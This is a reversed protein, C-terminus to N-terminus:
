TQSEIKDSVIESAILAMPVGIGPHIYQGTYYLNEVKKSQNHPRLIATQMLTHSLGLATGKYSNFLKKFDNHAFIQKTIIHDRINEGVLSELHKLTKEEYKERIEPTDPLGSAVPVLVFLNECGEPAVNSDTKSPACVYYSPSEPWDPNEFISDFHKEWDNDLFLNHHELKPLKKDIGLYMIFGSPAVTRKEWYRKSYSQYEKDLLRTETFHYDANSVIIDAEHEGSSTTVSKAKGDEVHIKEVPADFIYKVGLSKGLEYIGKAVANLGGEPYWVGMNFDIHAMISYMAPTTKPTGGLFVINYQLIKRARDDSFFRRVYKDISDFVHLKVGEVMFKRDAFDRFRRYDRYVFNKMSIDYQYESLDLYEMFKKDGGEELRGFLKKNAELDSRIDVVEDQGFFIRYSPDLKQLTFYDEPKKNFLDFFREFVDPMLYWSPGMDFKFGKSEILGARGGPQSNKEFVTVDFGKKALLAATSLGAFGAGIVIVKKM